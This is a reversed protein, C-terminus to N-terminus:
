VKRRAKRVAVLGFVGGFGLLAVSAPEPVPQFTYTITINADASASGGFFVGFVASGTYTGTGASFLFALSNAGTGIYPALAGPTTLTTTAAVTLAQGPLSLPPNITNAAITGSQAPTTATVTINLGAPGTLSVPVAATANTFAEAVPNINVINVFGTVTSTETITVSQHTGSAPNFQNAAFNFTYPVTSAVHTFTQTIFDARASGAAGVMLVAWALGARALHSMKIM